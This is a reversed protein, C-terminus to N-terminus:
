VKIITGTRLPALTKQAYQAYSHIEPVIKKVFL